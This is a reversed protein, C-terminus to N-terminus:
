QWQKKFFGVFLCSYHVGETLWYLCGIVVSDNVIRVGMFFAGM